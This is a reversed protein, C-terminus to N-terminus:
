TASGHRIKAADPPEVDDGIVEVVMGIVELIMKLV